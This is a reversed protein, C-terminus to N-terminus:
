FTIFTVGSGPAFEVNLVQTYNVGWNMTSAMVDGNALVKEVVAVHGLGYAGQVWPQLDIIAGVSPKSSVNWHFENARASWQLANAQTTWPVFIGHLQYYRQNAWWTCQGYPFYNGSGKVAQSNVPQSDSSVVSAGPICITQNVYILNPNAIHNYSALKQWSTKNSAAVSGLTDGSKVQYAQAGSACGSSAFAGLLGSGLGTGMLLTALVILVCVHGLIISVLRHQQLYSWIRQYIQM